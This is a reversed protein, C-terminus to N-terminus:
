QQYLRILNLKNNAAGPASHVTLRGDTVEVVGSGHIFGYGTPIGSLVVSDEVQIHYAGNRTSPDGAMLEVQYVGNPVAIEWVRDGGRQMLAHRQGLIDVDYSVDM